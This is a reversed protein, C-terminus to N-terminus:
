ECNVPQERWGVMGVVRTPDRKRITEMCNTCVCLDDSNQGGSQPSEIKDLLGKGRNTLHLTCVGQIHLHILVRHGNDSQAPYTPPTGTDEKNGHNTPAMAHLGRLTHSGTRGDTEKDTLCVQELLPLVLEGVTM